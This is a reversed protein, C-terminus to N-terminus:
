WGAVTWQPRRFRRLRGCEHSWLRRRDRRSCTHRRSLHPEGAGLRHRHFEGGDASVQWFLTGDAEAFRLFKHEVPDFGLPPNLVAYAGNQQWGVELGATNVRFSAWRGNNQEIRFVGRENGSVANDPVADVEVTITGGTLDYRRTSRYLGVESSSGPTASLHGNTENVTGSGSLYWIFATEGDGFDDQLLDIRGCGDSVPMGGSGNGGTAGGAGGAGGAAVAGGTDSGVDFTDWACAGMAISALAGAVALGGLLRFVM